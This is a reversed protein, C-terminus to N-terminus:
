CCEAGGAGAAAAAAAAATGGGGVGAAACHCDSDYGDSGDAAALIIRRNDGKAADVRM